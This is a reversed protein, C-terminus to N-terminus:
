QPTRLLVIKQRSKRQVVPNLKEVQSLLEDLDTDDYLMEGSVFSSAFHDVVNQAVGNQTLYTALEQPNMARMTPSGLTFSTDSRLARPWLHPELSLLNDSKHRVLESAYPRDGPNQAWCMEIMRAIVPPVGHHKTLAETSAAPRFGLPVRECLVAASIEGYPAGCTGTADQRWLEFLIVALAYIDSECSPASNQLLEPATYPITAPLSGGDGQGNVRRLAITDRKCACDLDILKVTHNADLALMINRPKLDGHVISPRQAQLYNLASLLDWTVRLRQAASLVGRSVAEELTMDCLELVAFTKGYGDVDSKDTCTWSGYCKVINPSDLSRLLEIEGHELPGIEKLAVPTEGRLLGKFTRHQGGSALLEGRRVHDPHVIGATADFHAKIAIRFAEPLQSNLEQVATRCKAVEDTAVLLKKEAASEVRANMLQLEDRLVVRISAPTPSALVRSGASEVLRAFTFDKILQDISEHLEVFKQSPNLIAANTCKM